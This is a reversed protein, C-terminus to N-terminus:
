PLGTLARSLHRLRERAAEDYAQDNARAPRSGNFYQGSELDPATLLNM